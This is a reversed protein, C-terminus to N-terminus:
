RTPELRAMLDAVAEMSFTELSLLPCQVLPLLTALEAACEGPRRPPVHQPADLLAVGAVLSPQWVAALVVALGLPGDGVVVPSEFGFASLFALLDEALSAYGVDARPELSLLRYRPWLGAAVRLATEPQAVLVLPGQQGPWDRFRLRVPALELERELFADDV